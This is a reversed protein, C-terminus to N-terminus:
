RWEVRYRRVTQIGDDDAHVAYVEDGHMSMILPVLQTPLPVRGVYLGSPEFVDYVIPEIWGGARAAFRSLATGHAAPNYRVSPAAVEVWMRGEVGFTVYRIPPKVTPIEVLPVTVNLTPRISM